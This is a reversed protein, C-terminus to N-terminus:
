IKVGRKQLYEKCKSLFEKAVKITLCACDVYNVYDNILPYASYDAKNRYDRWEKLLDGYDAGLLKGIYKSVDKHNDRDYRYYHFIVARAAHYMGYYNRSIINRADMDTKIDVSNASECFSIALKYRKITANEILSELLTSTFLGEEALSHLLEYKESSLREFNMLLSDSRNKKM